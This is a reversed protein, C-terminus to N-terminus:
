MNMKIISVVGRRFKSIAKRMNSRSPFPTTSEESNSFTVSVMMFPFFKRRELRYEQFFKDFGDKLFYRPWFADFFVVTLYIQMNRQRPCTVSAKKLLNWSTGPLAGSPCKLFPTRNARALRFHGPWISPSQFSASRAHAFPDQYSCSFESAVSCTKCFSFPLNKQGKKKLIQIKLDLGDVFFCAFLLHVKLLFFVRSNM